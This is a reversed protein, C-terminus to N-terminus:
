GPVKVGVGQMKFVGQLLHKNGLMYWYIDDGM